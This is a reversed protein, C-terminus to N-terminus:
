NGRFNFLNLHKPWRLLGYYVWFPCSLTYSVIGCIQWPIEETANWWVYRGWIDPFLSKTSLFSTPFPHWGFHLTSSFVGFVSRRVSSSEQGNLCSSRSLLRLVKQLLKEMKPLCWGGGMRNFLMEKWWTPIWFSRCVFGMQAVGFYEDSDEWPKRAVQFAGKSGGWGEGPSRWRRECASM